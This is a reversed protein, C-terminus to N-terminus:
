VYRRKGCNSIALVSATRTSTTGAPGSGRYQWTDTDCQGPAPTYTVQTVPTLGGSKSYTATGKSPGGINSISTLGGGGAVYAANLQITTLSITTATQFAVSANNPEPQLPTLETALYAAIETRIAPTVAAMGQGVIYDIFNIAGAANRHSINGGPAHCGGCNNAFQMAGDAFSPKSGLLLIMCALVSVIHWFTGISNSLRRTDSRAASYGASWFKCFYNIVCNTCAETFWRM